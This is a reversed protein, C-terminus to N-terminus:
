DGRARLDASDNKVNGVKGSVTHAKMEDAPYPRLLEQAKPMSVDLWRAYDAPDLIVPIRDDIKACLENPAAHNLVVVAHEIRM